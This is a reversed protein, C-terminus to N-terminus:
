QRDKGVLIDAGHSWFHKVSKNVLTDGTGLILDPVYYTQGGHVAECNAYEVLGSGEM